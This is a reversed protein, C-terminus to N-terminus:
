STVRLTIPLRQLSYDHLRQLAQNMTCRVIPHVWSPAIEVLPVLVFARDLLRPHPITLGTEQIVEHGFFLIDIDLSRPANPITRVRGAKVEITLAKELLVRASLSTQIEVVANYIDAQPPGGIAQGRYVASSQHVRIQPDQTLYSIGLQLQYLPDGVNSGLGLFAQM